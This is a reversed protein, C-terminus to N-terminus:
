AEKSIKVVSPRLLRDHMMYGKQFEQLITEDPVEGNEETMIGEHFNPDFPQGVAELASVGAKQLVEMFQKQIMRIGEVVNGLEEPKIETQLARELNDVVPLLSTVLNQGAFKAQEERERAHRRKYNEFDAAVRMLQENRIRLNELDVQVTPTSGTEAPKFQELVPEEVSFEPGPDVIGFSEETLEEQAGEEINQTDVFREETHEM